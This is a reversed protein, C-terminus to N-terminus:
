AKSRRDNPGVGNSARVDIPCEQSHENPQAGSLHPNPRVKWDRLSLGFSCYCGIPVDCSALLAREWEFRTVCAVGRGAVEAFIERHTRITSPLGARSTHETGAATEQPWDTSNIGGAGPRSGPAKRSPPRDFPRSMGGGGGEDRPHARSLCAPPEVIVRRRGFKISEPQMAPPPEYLATRGLATAQCFEEITWGAKSSQDM